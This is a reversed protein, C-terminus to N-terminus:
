LTDFDARRLNSLQGDMESAESSRRRTHVRLAIRRALDVHCFLWGAFRSLVGLRFASCPFVYRDSKAESGVRTERGVLRGLLAERPFVPDAAPMSDGRLLFGQRLHRVFRHLHFQGDRIALVIEGPRINEPSSKEIEVVDSPWLTPLMSAGHVRLRLRGSTRLSEIALASREGLWSAPGVDSSEDLTLLGKALAPLQWRTFDQRM